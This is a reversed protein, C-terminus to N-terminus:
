ASPGPRPGIRRAPNGVVTAGAPVDRVVVAGAGVIADDGITVGGCVIVGGGLWVNEGITIPHAAEWGQRRRVPDRPHDPTLLQVNSAIQTAAGITIPACDLLVAGYNVFADPGISIHSGYDCHFPPRIVAGEGVSGLLEHLAARVEAPESRVDNVVVSLKRRREALEQLEPDSSDNAQYWQGSLMLERQTPPM